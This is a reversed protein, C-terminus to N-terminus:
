GHHFGGAPSTPMERIMLDPPIKGKGVTQKFFFKVSAQRCEDRLDRAWGLVQENTPRGPRARDEGGCIIMTPYNLTSFESMRLPGLAPEYSVFITKVPVRILHDMRRGYEPQNEATIGLWVHGPVMGDRWRAPIMKLINQPRKTLLMWDLEPTDSILQWLDDRWEQPAQNDFVDALSACFVRPREPVMALPDPNRLDPRADRAWKLPKKWNAESTRRREAHPGWGVVGSRKAWGEAYCHDCAASVATCGTWANFTHTAWEIDTNEGM